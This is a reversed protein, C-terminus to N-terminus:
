LSSPEENESVEQVRNLCDLVNNLHERHASLSIIWHKICERGLPTVTYLKRPPGVPSESEKQELVGDNVMSKLMRYIGTVDPSQSGFLGTQMVHQAIAYGHLPAQAVISLLIPQMLKPLNGGSCPCSELCTNVTGELPLTATM